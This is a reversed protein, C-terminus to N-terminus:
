YGIYGVAIGQNWKGLLRSVVAVDSIMDRMIKVSSFYELDLLHIVLFVRDIVRM